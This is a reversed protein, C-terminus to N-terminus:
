SIQALATIEGNVASIPTGAAATLYTEARLLPLIELGRLLWAQLNPSHQPPAPRVPREPRRAECRPEVEGFDWGGRVRGVESDAQEFAERCSIGLRRTAGTLGATM